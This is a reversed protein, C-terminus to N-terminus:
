TFVIEVVEEPKLGLLSAAKGMNIAIELFGAANFICLPEGVPVDCYHQSLQTIPDNRKFFLSFGRGNSVKEFLDQRLNIVANEFNDIYLVTGRIRTPTIVPQLTIRDPLSGAPSGIDEFPQQETLHSVAAAFVEKMPFHNGSPKELEFVDEAPLNGFLLSLLGNDPALFFHGSKRAVVFRFAPDYFCNVALVHISGKPFEPWVNQLVFAGQVIDFPKIRHTIDVLNLAPQRYLLAGKLAGAYYDQDGFDTTLTVIQM